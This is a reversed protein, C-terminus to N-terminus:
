GSHRTQRLLKNPETTQTEPRRRDVRLNPRLRLLRVYGIGVVLLFPVFASLYARWYNSVDLISRHQDVDTSNVGFFALLLASPLAVLSAVTVINSTTRFRRDNREAIVADLSREQASVAATLRDLMRSTNNLSEPLGSADRLSGQFSGILHEPLLISDVYIEVGFSLELQLANIRDSLSAILQRAETLTEATAQEAERVAAFASERARKLLALASVTIPSVVALANEAPTSWGGLVAVGRGHIAVTQGPSNLWDPAHLGQRGRTRTGRSALVVLPDDAGEGYGELSTGEVRLVDLLLDGGLYVVQHVDRGFAIDPVGSGATQQLRSHIWSELPEGDLLMSERYWCTAALLDAVGKVDVAPPLEFELVATADGIPAILVSLRGNLRPWEQAWGRFVVDVDLLNWVAVVRPLLHSTARINREFRGYAFHDALSTSAIRDSDLTPILSYTTRVVSNPRYGIDSHGTAAGTPELENMSM